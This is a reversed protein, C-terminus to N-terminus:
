RGGGAPLTERFKVIAEYLAQVITAHFDAGALQKEQAPNSLYGMELLVAPMNAGELVRLPAQALPQPALPVHDQMQQQLLKAFANSADLYRFQALDWRVLDIERLGGGFTPLREPTLSATAAHEAQPAFGASFIIAGAAAKRPSANAHLSVFLDAKNNNAMASRDDIPVNRDDDRTLLVRVGLRGEVAAKLRRAVTLAIDKEKAGNVSKVGEDDGGHGPDLVITHVASSPQTLAPPMDSPTAAAPPAAAPPAAPQPETTQVAILDIVQRMSADAPQGPLATARFSGFRPGLEVVLTAPAVVRINQVIAPPPQHVFATTPPDLADADYKITLRDNEQSVTSAAAPAADITLRANSGQMEYRITLRPVRLDGVILLHSPKRLDLRADYILALARSIFELPVLWRRGAHAPAAPLSVLRGAVSALAQDPTLVITKGKYSVTIAGAEERVALQFASALDDLGVLEQDNAVVTPLARRGDKSLITLAAGPPPQTAVGRGLAIIGVAIAVCIFTPSRFNM